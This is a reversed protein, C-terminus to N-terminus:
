LAATGTEWFALERLTSHEDRGWADYWGRIQALVSKDRGADHARVVCVTEGPDVLHFRAGRQRYSRVQWGKPMTDILWVREADALFAPPYSSFLEKVLHGRLMRATARYPSPDGNWAVHEDPNGIAAAIRDLDIILDHPGRRKDVFTSKGACPPGVVVELAATM